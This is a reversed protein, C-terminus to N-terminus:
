LPRILAQFRPDDRLGRFAPDAGLYDRVQPMAKLYSGLLSLARAREGLLTRAVAENYDMEPDNPAAARSRGIVARASDPRGARALVGAVLLHWRPTYAARDAPTSLRELDAVLGWARDVDPREGGPWLLMALQCYAFRWDGPFRARGESCWRLADAQRDLDSSTYYLRYVIEAADRLFADARYAREAALNAEAVKGRAQLLQSLASWARGQSPNAPVAAARLDREAAEVAGAGGGAQTLLWQKALLTGRLELAPPYAPRRALAREAHELGVRIWFPRPAGSGVGLLSAREAALWGRLLVPEVWAPDYAEARALLSDGTGLLADAGGEDGSLRLARADDWQRQARQVLEWAAVSGTAARRQRLQVEQGLEERLFRSVQQAVADRLVFLDGWPRELTQSRLQNGNTADILRVAVRLRDASRGVSGTVITGVGLSRAISDLPVSRERYAAVGSSSIVRLADVQGLQDILDETLGGAVHRLTRGESLDEFYLVAVHTPDLRAAPVPRSPSGGWRAWAWRGAAVTLAAAVVVGTWRRPALRRGPQGACAALAAAFHAADSFRDAPVKALATRIVWDVAAPVGPRTIRASPVSQRLHKAAVARPTPGTFPPEGVLMEYLVCGLAYIDSRGDLREEAGAQEPSMYAPSGVAIGTETLRDGALEWVARAVGFDAVVAHGSELLVNEPKIDRHVVGHEHAYGLASAVERAIALAQDLPLPGERALHSRLSEGDVYPMVYYLLGGAEGSDHLPLINPHTLRAAIEIERLFRGPGLAAALDPRLVKLAIPRGHKLDQALYVTAMGGRGLEHEITYRGTLAAQLRALQDV